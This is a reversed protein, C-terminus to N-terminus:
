APNSGPPDTPLDPFYRDQGGPESARQVREWVAESMGAQWSRALAYCFKPNAGAEREVREVWADGNLSLFDEIPGAGISWLHTDASAGQVLELILDWAAQVDNSQVLEDVDDFAWAVEERELWSSALLALEADSRPQDILRWDEETTPPRIDLEVLRRAEDIVANPRRARMRRQWGCVAGLADILPAAVTDADALAGLRRRFEPDREALEIVREGVVDGHYHLLREVPRFWGASGVPTTTAVSLRHLLLVSRWGTEANYRILRDLLIADSSITAHRLWTEALSSKNV